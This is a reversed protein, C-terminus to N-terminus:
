KKFFINRIKWFNEYGGKFIDQFFISSFDNINFRPIEFFSVKSRLHLPKISFAFDYGASMTEDIVLNNYKGSPYALSVVKRGLEEELIRKSEKLDFALEEKSMKNMKKHSVGHAGIDFLKDSAIEKLQAWTMCNFEPRIFKKGLLDPSIFFIAPVNHKRLIRVANFYNDELGDDFTLLVSNNKLYKKPDGFDRLTLFIFNNNKLYVLQKELIEPSISLYHSKNSISHYALVSPRPQNFCFPLCFIKAILKRLSQRFSM